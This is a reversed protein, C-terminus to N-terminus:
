KPMSKTMELTARGSRRHAVWGPPAAQGLAPMILRGGTRMLGAEAALDEGVGALILIDLPAADRRGLADTLPGGPMAARGLSCSAERVSAINAARFPALATDALAREGPGAGCSECILVPTPAHAFRGCVPCVDREVATLLAQRLTFEGFASEARALGAEALCACLAPDRLLTIAHEALAAATDGVLADEGQRLGLGENGVTTTVVPVGAQLSAIIKGKVGAGFRLANLTLRARRYLPALDPLWGPVEVRAEALATLAVPPKGGALVLVADPVAAWVLPMIEAALWRAADVNPVHDYGGVFLVVSREAFDAAGHAADVAPTISYLPISRAAVGPVLSEIVPLEDASPSLVLRARRFIDREIGRLRWADERHEDEGTLEARRQERLFHLDHTYYILRGGAHDRVADLLPEAVAPRALWVWDLYPGNERIWDRADIDGFLVEIGLQQLRATYPDPGRRDHPYLTVRFGESRLLRLWDFTAIAGAHKDPEPVRDDVILIHGPMPRERALYSPTEPTPRDALAQAWRGCFRAHNITSQRDREAVGYSASDFHTVVSAPQYMVRWGRNRLAFAFDFEEYYAPAFDDDFGGITNWASRRIMMCAGVVVDVERVFNYQPKSADDGKGYPLGWGNRMIIGGAEQVTGDRNLLKAGVMGIRADAEALRLMPALWGPHVTTDNNLFLLYRGSAHRTARNCSRVFGLNETNRMLHLGPVRDLRDSIPREPRDDIVILEYPIADGSATMVAALCRLTDCSRGYVPVIISVVPPRAATFAVPPIAGGLHEALLCPFSGLSRGTELFHALPNTGAPVAYRAAYWDTDFDPHPDYGLAGGLLVYHSLPDLSSDQGRLYENWYLSADFYPNPDFSRVAGTELYHLLANAPVDTARASYFNTDFLPHPDYGAAAGERLYHALPNVGSAAVEPHRRLYFASDFLPHPNYGERCGSWIYHWLPDAGSQAVDPYCNLYTDRDFLKSALLIDADARVQRRLRLRAPLEGRVAAASNAAVGVMRRSLGPFREGLKRIPSTARWAPSGIVTQHAHNLAALEARAAEYEASRAANASALEAERAALAHQAEAASRKAREFDARNAQAAAELVTAREQLEASRASLTAVTADAAGLTATREDLSHQLRDETAHLGEIEATAGALAAESKQLRRVAQLGENAQVWREGLFAFRQRVAGMAREDALACLEAVLAPADEGCALMGLGHEHFFAFHPFDASLEDWLRWVGFDRERVNIDHFLVVARESLKPQWSLWDARVAEYTHLGDIHLVDVSGDAFYPLAEDFRCRLLESFGSYRGDHFRRLDWYVEDSYRGAHEDGEWTDVAFARGHPSFRAMAECFSLYSAGNHTGLEVFLRPRAVAVLWHAFPVHGFWASEVGLRPPQLFLPELGPAAIADPGSLSLNLLHRSGDQDFRPRAIGVDPKPPM